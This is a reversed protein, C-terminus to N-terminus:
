EDTIGFPKDDIWITDDDFATILRGDNLKASFSGLSYANAIMKRVSLTIKM